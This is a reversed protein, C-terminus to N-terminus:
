CVLEPFIAKALDNFEKAGKSGPAMENISMGESLTRRFVTRQCLRHPLVTINKLSRLAKETEDSERVMVHTDARNVFVLLQTKNKDIDCNKVINLFRQTAWLDPQGPPVPIIIRGAAKVAQKMAQMDSAGVDVLVHDASCSLLQDVDTLVDIAGHEENERLEVVDSLTGQPDLDFSIIEEGQEKLWLALNFVFTSKGSGGKLNAIVTIM